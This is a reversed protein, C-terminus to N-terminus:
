ELLRLCAAATLALDALLLAHLITHYADPVVRGPQRPLITLNGGFLAAYKTVIEPPAGAFHFIWHRRQNWCWYVLMPLAAFAARAHGRLYALEIAVIAALLAGALGLLPDKDVLRPVGIFDLAFWACLATHVVLLWTM